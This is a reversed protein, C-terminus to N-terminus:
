KVIVPNEFRWNVVNYRLAQELQFINIAEPKEGDFMGTEEVEKQMDEFYDYHTTCTSGKKISVILKFISYFAWVHPQAYYEEGMKQLRSVYNKFDEVMEEQKYDYHRAIRDCIVRNLAITFPTAETFKRVDLYNDLAYNALQDINEFTEVADDAFVIENENITKVLNTTAM